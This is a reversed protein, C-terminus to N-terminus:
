KSEEPEADVVFAFNTPLFERYHLNTTDTESSEILSGDINFTLDDTKNGSSGYKECKITIKKAATSDNYDNLDITYNKDACEQAEALEISSAAASSVYKFISARDILRTSAAMSSALMTGAIGLILVGIIMEVLTMGKNNINKM